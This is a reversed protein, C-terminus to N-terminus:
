ETDKLIWSLSDENWYYSQGDDPYPVPPKWTFHDIASLTWSDFPQPGVFVDNKSDYTFGIGAYQGRFSANFSTQKWNTEAGFLNKCFLVGLSEQEVGNDDEIQNNDVVIVRTVLGNENIQAFHAM